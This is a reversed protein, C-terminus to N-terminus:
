IILCNNHLNNVSKRLYIDSKESVEYVDEALPHAIFLEFLQILLIIKLLEGIKVM